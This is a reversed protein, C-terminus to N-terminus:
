LPVIFRNLNSGPEDAYRWFITLKTPRAAAVKLVMYDFSDGYEYHGDVEGAIRIFRGAADPQVDFHEVQIARTSTNVM